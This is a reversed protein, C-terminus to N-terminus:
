RKRVIMLALLAVAVVALVLIVYGAWADMKGALQDELGGIRDTPSPAETINLRMEAFSIACERGDLRVNRLEVEYTGPVLDEPVELYASATEGKEASIRESALVTGDKLLLVDMSYSGPEAYNAQMDAYIRVGEGPASEYTGLWADKEFIRLSSVNAVPDTTVSGGLLILRGDETAVVGSGLVARPPEPASVFSCDAMDVIRFTGIGILDTTM